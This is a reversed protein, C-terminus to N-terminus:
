NQTFLVWCVVFKYSQIVKIWCTASHAFQYVFKDFTHMYLVTYKYKTVQWSPLICKMTNTHGYVHVNHPTTHGYICKVFEHIQKCTKSSLPIFHYLWMLQLQQITSFHPCNVYPFFPFGSFIDPVDYFMSPIIESILKFVEHSNRLIPVGNYM